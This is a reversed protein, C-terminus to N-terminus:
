IGIARTRQKKEFARSSAAASDGPASRWGHTEPAVLLKRILSLNSLWQARWLRPSLQDQHFTNPSWVACEINIRAVSSLVHTSVSRLINLLPLLCTALVGQLM